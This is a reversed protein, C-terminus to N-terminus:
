KLRGVEEVRLALDEIDEKRALADVWEIPIQEFGYWIGALGGAVAGVTDTDEGLNVAKLVCDRYSSTTLLCWLAAELTHVVYGSSSVEDVHLTPIDGNWIRDYRAIEVADVGLTAFVEPLHTRIRDYAIKPEIGRMLVDAMELYVHCAIVSRIHGHTISSVKRAIEFRQADDEDRFLVVAPLCRMLSGNGNSNVDDPGAKEPDVGQRLNAIAQSTAIGVDFVNGHATWYGISQWKQFRDSLDYLDLHGKAAITEALCFTLSSDDSFTGAPQHYTGYGRMGTVPNESISQRSMFEVPVGLADGVAVGFLISKLM